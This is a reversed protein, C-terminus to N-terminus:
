TQHGSSCAGHRLSVSSVDLARDLPRDIKTALHTPHRPVGQHLGRLRLMRRTHLLLVSLFTKSLISDIASCRLEDPQDQSAAVRLDYLLAEMATSM